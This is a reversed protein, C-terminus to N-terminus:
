SNFIISHYWSNKITFTDYQKAETKKQHQQQQKKPFHEMKNTEQFVFLIQPKSTPNSGSETQAEGVATAPDCTTGGQPASEEAKRVEFSAPLVEGLETFPYTSTYVYTSIYIYIINSVYVM